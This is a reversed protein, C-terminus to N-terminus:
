QVQQLKLIYIFVSGGAYKFMLYYNISVDYRADNGFIRIISEQISKFKGEESLLAINTLTDYGLKKLLMEVRASVCVDYKRLTTFADDEKGSQAM